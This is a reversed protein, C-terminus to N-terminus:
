FPINVIAVYDSLSGDFNKFGPIDWCCSVPKNNWCEGCVVLGINKNYGCAPCKKNMRAKQENTQEKIM